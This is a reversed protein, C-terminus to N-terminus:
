DSLVNDKIIESLCSLLTHLGSLQTRHVTSKNQHLGFYMTEQFFSIPFIIEHSFMRYVSLNEM